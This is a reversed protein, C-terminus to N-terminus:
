FGVVIVMRLATAGCNALDSPAIAHRDDLVVGIAEDLGMPRRRERRDRRVGAPM